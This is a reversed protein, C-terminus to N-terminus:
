TLNSTRVATIILIKSSLLSLLPYYHSVSRTPPVSNIIPKSPEWANGTQGEPLHLCKVPVISTYIKKANLPTLPSLFATTQTMFVWNM